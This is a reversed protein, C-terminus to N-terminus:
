RWQAEASRGCCWQAVAAMVAKITRYGAPDRGEGADGLGLGSGGPEGGHGGGESESLRGGRLPYQHQGDSLM